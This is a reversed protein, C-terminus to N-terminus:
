QKIWQEFCDSVQENSGRIDRIRYSLSITDESIAIGAGEIYIGVAVLQNEITIEQLFVEATIDVLSDALISITVQDDDTEESIITSYTQTFCDSSAEFSGLFKERSPICSGDDVIAETNYNDSGFETCGSEQKCGLAFAIFLLVIGIRVYVSPKM